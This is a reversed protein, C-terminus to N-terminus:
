VPNNCYKHSKEKMGEVKEYNILLKTSYPGMEYTGRIRNPDYNDIFEKSIKFGKVRIEFQGEIGGVIGSRCNITENQARIIGFDSLVQSNMNSDYNKTLIYGGKRICNSGFNNATFYVKGDTYEPDTDYYIEGDIVREGEYYYFEIDQSVLRFNPDLDPKCYDLTRSIDNEPIEYLPLTGSDDQSNETHSINKLPLKKYLAFAVIMVLFLLSTRVVLKIIIKNSPM